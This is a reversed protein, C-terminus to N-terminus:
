GRGDGRETIFLECVFALANGNGNQNPSDTFDGLKGALAIARKVQGAQTDHLTFTMQQFPARDEGPLKGFAGAWENGDAPRMSLLLEEFERDSYGIAELLEEDAAKSEELIAALQAADPEALRGLENDAAVYALALHEPYDDPLVDARLAAWGEARAAEVLGHGALITSGWVVISRVQGFKRLSARLREVQAAPHKNYNRPHPRLEALGVERREVRVAQM